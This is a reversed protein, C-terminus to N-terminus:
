LKVNVGVYASRDPQEYGYVTEYEKNLLNELRAYLSVEKTLRYRADLNVLWFSPLEYSGDPRNGTYQVSGGLYWTGFTKSVDLSALNKARRALRQGNSRDKPDQITVNARVDVDALRTQATLELGKNKAKAINNYGGMGGNMATDWNILDRTHWQFASLRVLTPGSAYQIGVENARSKEAKLQVNGYTPDRQQWLTPALFSSSTSALLKWEPTLDYGYGLYGTFESGADKVDDYRVNAQWNHPGVKGLVGAYASYKNRSYDNGFGNETTEAKEHAGDVGVTATWENSLAIENVWQLMGTKSRYDSVGNPDWWISAFGNETSYRRKIDTQSFTVTSLWDATLRNKSYVAGTWQRAKGTNDEEPGNSGDYDYKADYLYLRAGLEHNPSFRHSLAANVTVDRDGDDDPNVLPNKGPDMASFGQTKLRVASLAFRTGDSQGSLGAGFRTTAHSGYEAFVHASPKGSGQKTFIQIVGGMAGTGYIASVNGRVVEIREIQDPMIHELAASTGSTSADQIPVGDLLILVQNANNGRMFVSTQGGAGGSRAFEIGAESRLLSPLDALKKNAIMQSTIVTTSPIADKQLQEIRSATVVVSPLAKEGAYDAEAAQTSTAFGTALASVLLLPRIAPSRACTLVSFDM